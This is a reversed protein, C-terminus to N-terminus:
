VSRWDITNEITKGTTWQGGVSRLWKIVRLFSQAISCYKSSAWYMENYTWFFFLRDKRKVRGSNEKCGSWTLYKDFRYVDSYSCVGGIVARINMYLTKHVSEIPLTKLFLVDIGHFGPISTVYRNCNLLVITSQTGKVRIFLINQVNCM